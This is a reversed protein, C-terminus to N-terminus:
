TIPPPGTASTSSRTSAAIFAAVDELRYRVRTGVKVYTPGRGSLRWKNLISASLRLLAAVEDTTLLGPPGTAPRGALLNVLQQHRREALIKSAGGDAAFSVVDFGIKRITNKRKRM